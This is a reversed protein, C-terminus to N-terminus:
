KENVLEISTYFNNKDEFSVVGKKEFRKFVFDKLKEEISLTKLVMKKNKIVFTLATKERQYIWNSTFLHFNDISETSTHYFPYAEITEYNLALLNYNADITFSGKYFRDSSFNILLNDNDDWSVDYTYGRQNKIFDLKAVNLNKRVPYGSIWGIPSEKDNYSAFVQKQKTFWNNKNEVVNKKTFSDVFNNIKITQQENRNIITDTNKLNIQKLNFVYSTTDANKELQKNLRKFITKISPKSRVTVTQIDLEKQSFAFVSFLILCLFKNM